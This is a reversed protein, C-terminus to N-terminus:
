PNTPFGLRVAEKQDQTLVVMQQQVSFTWDVQPLNPPDRLQRPQDANPRPCGFALNIVQHGISDTQLNEFMSSRSVLEYVPDSSASTKVLRVCIGATHGIGIDTGHATFARQLARHSWRFAEATVDLRRAPTDPEVYVVKVQILNNSGVVWVVAHRGPGWGAESPMDHIHFRIRTPFWRPWVNTADTLHSRRDDDANNVAVLASCAASCIKAVKAKSSNPDNVYNNFPGLRDEFFAREEETIRFVELPLMGEDPHMPLFRRILLALHERAELSAPPESFRMASSVNVRSRASVIDYQSLRRLPFSTIASTFTVADPCGEFAARARVVSRHRSILNLIMGYIPSEHDKPRVFAFYSARFFFVSTTNVITTRPVRSEELSKLPEKLAQRTPKVDYVWVFDKVSVLSKNFGRRHRVIEVAFTDLVICHLDRRDPGVTFFDKAELIVGTGWATSVVQYLVPRYGKRFPPATIYPHKVSSTQPLDSIDTDMYTGALVNELVRQSRERFAITDELSQLEIFPFESPLRPPTRVVIQPFLSKNFRLSLYGSDPLHRYVETRLTTTVVPLNEWLMDIPRPNVLYAWPHRRILYHSFGQPTKQPLQGVDVQPLPGVHYQRAARLDRGATARSSSAGRGSSRPQLRRPGAQTNTSSAEPRNQSSTPHSPQTNSPRRRGSASRQSKAPPASPSVSRSSRTPPQPSNSVSLRRMSATVRVVPAGRPSLPHLVDSATSASVYSTPANSDGETAPESPATTGSTDMPSETSSSSFSHLSFHADASMCASSYNRTVATVRGTPPGVSYRSPGDPDPIQSTSPPDSM